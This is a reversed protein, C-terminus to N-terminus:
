KTEIEVTQEVRRIDALLESRDTHFMVLDFVSSGGNKAYLCQGGVEKHIYLRKFSKFEQIKKIGSLKVLEGEEKAFFKMAVTHGKM